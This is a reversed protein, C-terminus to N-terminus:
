IQFFFFSYIIFLILTIENFVKMQFVDVITVTQLTEFLKVMGYKPSIFNVM